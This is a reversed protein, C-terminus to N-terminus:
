DVGYPGAQTLHFMVLAGLPGFEAMFAQESRPPTGEHTLPAFHADELQKSPSWVPHVLDFQGDSDLQVYRCHSFDIRAGYESVLYALVPEMANTASAGTNYERGDAILVLGSSLEPRYIGACGIGHRGPQLPANVYPLNLSTKFTEM